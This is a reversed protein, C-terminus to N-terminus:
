GIIMLPPLKGKQPFSGGKAADIYFDPISPFSAAAQQFVPRCAKKKSFLTVDFTPPQIPVAQLFGSFPAPSVICGGFIPKLFFFLVMSGVFYLAKKTSFVPISGTVEQM